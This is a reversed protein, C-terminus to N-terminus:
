KTTTTESGRRGGTVGLDGGGGLVEQSRENRIKGEERKKSYCHTAELKLVWKVRRQSEMGGSLGGRTGGSRKEKSEEMIAYKREWNVM